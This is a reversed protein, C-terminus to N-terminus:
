TCAAVHWTCVKAYVLIDSCQTGRPGSSVVKEISGAGDNVSLASLSVDGVPHSFRHLLHSLCSLLVCHGSAM